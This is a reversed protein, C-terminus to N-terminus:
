KFIFPKHVAKGLQGYHVRLWYVCKGHTGRRGVGERLRRDGWRGRDSEQGWGLIWVVEFSGVEVKAGLPYLHTLTHSLIEIGLLSVSPALVIKNHPHPM